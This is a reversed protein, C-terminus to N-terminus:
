ELVSGGRAMEPPGGDDGATPASERASAQSELRAADARCAAAAMLWPDFLSVIQEDRPAEAQSHARGGELMVLRRRRQPEVPTEPVLGRAQQAVAAELREPGLLWDAAADSENARRLCDLSAMTLPDFIPTVDAPAHSERDDDSM